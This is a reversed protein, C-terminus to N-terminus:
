NTPHPRPVRHVISVIGNVRCEFSLLHSSHSIIILSFALSLSLSLIIVHSFSLSHHTLSHSFPLILVKPVKKLPPNLCDMHTGRNCHNDCILLREPRDGKGCVSCVINELVFKDDPKVFSRLRIEKWQPLARAM